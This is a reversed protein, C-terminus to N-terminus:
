RKRRLLATITGIILIIAIALTIVQMMPLPEYAHPHSTAGYLMHGDVYAKSDYKLPQVDKQEWHNVDSYETSPVYPRLDPDGFFCVNEFIDWWWQPPETIYLIGVKSIGDVYAEGITKGLALDRPIFELWIDHYWSTPWPDIIQFVSGHRILAIHYYTGAPQCDGFMCGCSHINKLANDVELGHVKPTTIVGLMISNIYGDYYDMTDKFWSPLLWKILPIKSLINSATDLIPKKAPGWDLGLRFIGNLNPDGILAAIIGHVEMTLTDPEYTSGLYWEYARWPNDEKTAGFLKELLPNYFALHAPDWFSTGGGNGNAGHGSRIWMIVGRNIDDMVASFNTSFANSYGARSCYFPAIESVTMDPYFAGDEGTYKKNVGDDIADFSNTEGPIIGDATQYKFGYYKVARENFKHTYTIYTHLVPYKFNAEQPSRVIRLGMGGWWPFKRISKSGNILKVGDPNMAPNEFILAPYFINRCTLYATDVPTGLIRGSAAKGVFVRDWAIGIDYQGAVTLISEMGERDFHNKKLFDYIRKGTLYMESVTPLVYVRNNTSRKWFENHWVLASSLEPHMDVILVPSGHHAAVYTAPGLYFAKKKEGAAKGEAVYWYTWPDITTFIVDNQGSIDTIDKYIESLGEYEKKIKVISNLENKVNKSLCGDISVLYITRVGLERLADITSKPIISSSIYLLPANLISALIAGEAASSLANGEKKEVKQHWSYEIKVNTTGQFDDLAFISLTYHEGPLCEGLLDLHIEQYGEASENAASLIQEGGPGILSFGLHVYPNDWTLKISVDKCGFPPTDPIQVESGPYLSIDINYNVGKAINSIIEKWSGYRQVGETPTDTIGIRWAGSKYVYTKASLAEPDMGWQNTNPAVAAVQMWQGDYKCYVQMDPDGAPLVIWMFPFVMYSLSAFTTRAVLYKYGDPVNFERFQPNLRNTQPIEFHLTKIKKDISLKYDFSNSFVKDTRNFDKEIVAVVAKDSYSWDNLAIEAAISYPDDGKIETVKRSPWQTVKN